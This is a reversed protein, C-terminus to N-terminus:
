FNFGKMPTAYKKLDITKLQQNLVTMRYDINKPTVFFGFDDPIVLGQIKVGYIRSIIMNGVVPRYHPTDYFYFNNKSISDIGSFDWYDALGVLRKKFKNFQDVGNGIYNVPHEPNIFIKLDINNKKCLEIIESIDKLAIDENHGEAVWAFKYRFENPDVNPNKLFDADLKVAIVRGTNYHDFFQTDSSHIDIWRKPKLFLYGLYFELKDYLGEPYPKWLPTGWHDTPGVKYCLMDIGLLINKITVGEKLMLKIDVLHDRPVGRSYSMNYWKGYPIHSMDMYGVKSSGFIYSDYRTKNKLLHDIKIYHQNPSIKHGTLDKSFIVYRDIIINYAALPGFCIVVLLFSKAFFKLLQKM